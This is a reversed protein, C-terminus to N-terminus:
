EEAQREFAAELDVDPYAESFLKMEEELSTTEAGLADVLFNVQEGLALIRALWEEQTARYDSTRTAAAIRSGTVMIEELQTVGAEQLEARAAAIDPAVTVAQQAPEAQAPSFAGVPALGSTNTLAIARTTSAQLEDSRPPPPPVVAPIVSAPVAAEAAAQRVALSVNQEITERTNQPTEEPRPEPGATEVVRPSLPASAVPLEKVGLDDQRSFYLSTVLVGVIFSAALRYGGLKNQSAVPTREHVAARAASLILADLGAPPQEASANRWAASVRDQGDLYPKLEADVAGKDDPEKM